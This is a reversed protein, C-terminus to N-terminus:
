RYTRLLRWLELFAAAGHAFTLKSGRVDHWRKLPLETLMPALENPAVIRKLRALLEVDFVWPSGFPEAFAAAMERGNRFLKAGCQTDYVAMGLVMSALTAFIRGAYHRLPDREVRAGLRAVRSGLAGLLAPDADLTAVFDPIADLPTALDADWYGLYDAGSDLSDLVGRRVAEAKGANAPLSRLGIQRPFRAALQELVRRTDDTSGDDVFLFDIHPFAVVFRAVADVDLRASENYCPVVIRATRVSVAGSIRSDGSAESMSSAGGM